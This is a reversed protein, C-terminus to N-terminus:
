RNNGGDDVSTDNESRRRKFRGGGPPISRVVELRVRTGGMPERMAAVNAAPASDSSAALGAAFALCSPLLLRRLDFGM